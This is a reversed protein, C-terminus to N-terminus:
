QVAPGFRPLRGDQAEETMHRLERAASEHGEDSLARAVDSIGTPGLGRMIMLAIFTRHIADGTVFYTKMIKTSSVADFRHLLRVAADTRVDFDTEKELAAVVVAQVRSLHQPNLKALLDVLMARVMPERESAFARAVEGAFADVPTGSCSLRAVAAGRFREDTSRLRKELESPQVEASCFACEPESRFKPISCLAVRTERYRDLYVNADDAWRSGVPASGLCLGALTMVVLYPM